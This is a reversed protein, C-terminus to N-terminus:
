MPLVAWNQQPTINWRMRYVMLWTVECPIVEYRTQVSTSTQWSSKVKINHKQETIMKYLEKKKWLKSNPKSLQHKVTCIDLIKASFEPFIDFDETQLKYSYIEFNSHFKTLIEHWRYHAKWANYIITYTEDRSLFSTFNYAKEGTRVEIGNPFVIATYKRQLDTVDAFPIM